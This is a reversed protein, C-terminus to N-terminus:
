KGKRRQDRVFQALEDPDFRWARGFHSANIKGELAYKIVTTRQVGLLEAAAQSSLLKQM